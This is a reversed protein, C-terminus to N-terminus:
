DVFVSFDKWYSEVLINTMNIDFLITIIIYRGVVSTHFHSNVTWISFGSGFV